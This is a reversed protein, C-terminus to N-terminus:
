RSTRATVCSEHGYHMRYYDRPLKDYDKWSDVFHDWNQTRSSEIALVKVNADFWPGAIQPFEDFYSRLYLAFFIVAVVRAVVPMWTIFTSIRYILYGSILAVFPWAGIARLAHPVSEWIMAAPAIGTFVGWIFLIFILLHEHAQYLQRRFALWLFSLLALLDFWSLEGFSQISHRLNADGSWFLFKPSLHSFVNTFFLRIVLFISFGGFQQLYDPSTISLMNFRGQLEGSLTGILLPVLAISFSAAGTALLKWNPRDRKIKLYLLFPLLLGVQMRTPPYSYMALALLVSAVIAEWFRKARFYFYLGWILFCPGLPPDWAIRSFQFSWPSIAGALASWLGAQRSLFLLRALFYLGVITLVSYFAILARFSFISTGFIRTWVVGSYLYPGTVFGGSLSRSFLPLHAGFPDTGTQQVCMIATSLAAEDIYFGPPSAELDWFRIVCAIVCIFLIRYSTDRM